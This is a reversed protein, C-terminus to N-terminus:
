ADRRAYVTSRRGQGGCMAVVGAQEMRELAWRVQAHSLGTAQRLQRLSRPQELAAWVAPAHRSMRALDAGALARVGRNGGRRVEEVVRAGGPEDERRLDAVGAPADVARPTRRKVQARVQQATRTREATPGVMVAASQRGSQAGMRGEWRLIATFRTGYDYFEPEPLGARAMAERVELIGAGEGEIVRFGDATRLNRCIDYLTPNVANKGEPTGLQTRTLGRLGGPSTVTLSSDTMRIELRRTEAITELSRHVLANAVIERVAALPLAPLDVGHGDQDYGMSVPLNRRVWSLADELLVPIPGTLHTLDHTRTSTLVHNHPQGVSAGGQPRAAGRDQNQAAEKLRVAATAGLTPRAGQPYTGLAYLGALTLQGDSTTVGTLRLIEGNTREALRRSSARCEALYAATLDPDLDAITGGAPERDPFRPALQSAKLLEIQALEQDSMVYDGDSQRLYARGRYTAPRHQLPLPTVEALLVDVGEVHRTEFSVSVPPVVASRAQDAVGAELTALDTLGVPAFGAREDLGLILLGGGPMNGFAALTPGLTPCGDRASKVEITATDGGRKRLMHILADLDTNELLEPTM